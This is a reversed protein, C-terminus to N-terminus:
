LRFFEKANQSMQNKLAEMVAKVPIGEGKSKKSWEPDESMSKYLEDVRGFAQMENESEM